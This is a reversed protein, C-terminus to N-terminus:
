SARDTIAQTVLLNVYRVIPADDEVVDGMRSLDTDQPQQSDEFASTLDGMEEDARCFRDLARVLNDRTTVVSVVPMGSATRVDDVAVVNGPDSTALLLAGNVFAVPLVTYRRCLAPPVVAVAARDVAYEDLDIFPMGVQAALARVLQDESLIGLEVLTRGLSQGKSVQEDLAALLQGETVLGEDLLIEGLQKM